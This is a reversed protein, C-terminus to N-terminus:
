PTTLISQVFAEADSRTMGTGCSWAYSFGDDVWTLLTYEDESDGKMMISVNGTSSELTCNYTNYDGSIDTGWISTRAVRYLSGDEWSAQFMSGNILTLSAQSLDPATVEWGLTAEAEDVSSCPVMPNAIQTGNEATQTTTQTSTQNPRADKGEPQETIATTEDATEPLSSTQSDSSSPRPEDPVATSTTNTQRGDDTVSSATGEAQSSTSPETEQPEATATEPQQAGEESFDETPQLAQETEAAQAMASSGDATETSSHRSDDTSSGAASGGALSYATTSAGTNESISLNQSSSTLWSHGTLVIALCAAACATAKIVKVWYPQIKRDQLRLIRERLEPSVTIPEMAQKYATSFRRNEAETCDSKGKQNSYNNM